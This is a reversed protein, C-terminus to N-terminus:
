GKWVTLIETIFNLFETVERGAIKLTSRGLANREINELESRLDVNKVTYVAARNIFHM